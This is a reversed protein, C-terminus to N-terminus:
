LKGELLAIALDFARGILDPDSDEKLTHATLIEKRAMGQQREVQIVLHYIPAPPSTPKRVLQTESM